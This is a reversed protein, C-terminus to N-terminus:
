IWRAKAIIWTFVWLWGAVAVLFVPVDIWLPLRPLAIAFIVWLLLFGGVFWLAAAFNWGSRDEM